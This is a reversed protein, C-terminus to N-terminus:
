RRLLSVSFWIIICRLLVPTFTGLISILRHPGGISSWRHIIRELSVRCRIFPMVQHLLRVRNVHKLHWWGVLISGMEIVAAPVVPHKWWGAFLLEDALLLLHLLNLFSM